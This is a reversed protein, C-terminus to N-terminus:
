ARFHAFGSSLNGLTIEDPSAAGLSEDVYQMFEISSKRHAVHTKM